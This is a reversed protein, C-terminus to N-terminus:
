RKIRLNEIFLHQNGAWPKTLLDIDGDGDVDASVSEHTRLGEQILHERWSGDPLQEFIFWRHIGQTLPGGGTFFDVDGDGDFDAVCLSHFDQRHGEGKILQVEWRSGDGRVNKFLAVRGDLVDGEAQLLDLDGDRDFDVLEARTQLGWPGEKGFAFVKHEVWTLGKGDRNELWRDVRTVDLDGDGDLDGVAIGGHCPPVTVGLIEHRPWRQAPDDPVDFWFVGAKDWISFLEPRGDGDIDAIRHDHAPIAGNEFREWRDAARPNGPNRFWTGGSVQDVWGDRDVDFAVGAVDTKAGEGIMHRVWDDAARYEFWYLVGKQTGSIFDLDGDRDVDVASTQGFSRGEPADIVHVQFRPEGGRAIALLGVSFLLLNASLKM